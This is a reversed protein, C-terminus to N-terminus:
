GFVWEVDVDAISRPIGLNRVAEYARRCRAVKEPSQKAQTPSGFGIFEELGMRRNSEGIVLACEEFQVISLLSDVAEMGPRSPGAWAIRDGARVRWIHPGDMIEGAEQGAKLRESIVRAAHNCVESPHLEFWPPLDEIRNTITVFDGDRMEWFDMITWANEPDGMLDMVSKVTFWLIFDGPRCSWHLTMDKGFGSVPLESSM